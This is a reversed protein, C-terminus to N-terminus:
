MKVPMTGMGDGVPGGSRIGRANPVGDPQHPSPVFSCAGIMVRAIQTAAPATILFPAAKAGHRWSRFCEPAVLVIRAEKPMETCGVVDDLIVALGIRADLQLVVAECAPDAPCVIVEEDDLEKADVQGVRGFSPKIAQGSVRNITTLIELLDEGAVNWFCIHPRAIRPIQLTAALLLPFGQPIVDPAERSLTRTQCLSGFGPVRAQGHGAL